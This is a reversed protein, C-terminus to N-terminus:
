GTTHPDPRVSQCEMLLFVNVLLFRKSVANASSSSPSTQILTALREDFNAITKTTSVTPAAFLVLPQTIATAPVSRRASVAPMAAMPRRYVALASVAHRTGVLTARSQLMLYVGETDTGSVRDQDRKM